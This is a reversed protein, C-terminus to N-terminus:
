HLVTLISCDNGRPMTYCNRAAQAAQARTYFVGARVFGAIVTAKIALVTNDEDRAIVWESPLGVLLHMPALRGDALRSPEVRGTTTDCFAPIFDTAHNGASVGGTGGYALNEKRLREGTMACNM